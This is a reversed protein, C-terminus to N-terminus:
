YHEPNAYNVLCTDARVLQGASCFLATSLAQHNSDYVLPRADSSPSVTLKISRCSDLKDREILM